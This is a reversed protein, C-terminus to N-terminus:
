ARAAKVLAAFLRSDGESIEYEPHWQVGLCFAHQTSEIGEIVGDPAVANVIVGPAVSRVAQHHSTNVALQTGGVIRHLLTNETIVVEHGPQNRPHKQEHELAQDISDPIHQILSGGLIVNLLQQGGCIGLVPLNRALALTTIATEFATRTDKTVVTPHKEGGGYYSPDIDFNGGTIILGDLLALMDEVLEVHHPLMFPVGGARSVAIAYNERLAYHPFASYEGAKEWDLTIGIIPKKM